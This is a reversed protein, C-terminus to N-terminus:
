IFYCKTRHESGFILRHMLLVVFIYINIKGYRRRRTKSTNGTRVLELHFLLNPLPKLKLRIRGFWGNWNWILELYFGFVIAFLVWFNNILLQFLKLSFELKVEIILITNDYQIVWKQTAEENSWLTQLYM